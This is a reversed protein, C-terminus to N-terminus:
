HSGRRRRPARDPGALPVLLVQEAVEEDIAEVVQAVDGLAIGRGAVVPAALERVLGTFVDVTSRQSRSAGSRKSHEMHTVIQSATAGWMVLAHVLRDLGADPAPETHSTM